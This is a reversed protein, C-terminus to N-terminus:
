DGFHFSEKEFLGLLAAVLNNIQAFDGQIAWYVVGPVDIAKTPDTPRVANLSKQASDLASLCVAIPESLKVDDAFPSVFRRVRRSVENLLEQAESFRIDQQLRELKQIIESLEIAVTQLRVTRGAATAAKRAEQAEQKAKEAERFARISYILGGASVLVSVVGVWFDPRYWLPREALQMLQNLASQVDTQM